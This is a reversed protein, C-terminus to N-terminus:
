KGHKGEKVFIGFAKMAEDIEAQEPKKKFLPRGKATVYKAAPQISNCEM